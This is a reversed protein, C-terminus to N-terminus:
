RAMWNSNKDNSSKWNKEYRDVKPVKAEEEEQKRIYVQSYEPQQFLEYAMTLADLGDDHWNPFREMEERLRTQAEINVDDVMFMAGNYLPAALAEIRAAKSTRSHTVLKMRGNEVTVTHGRAKLANSVHLHTTSIGIKEVAVHRIPLNGIYLNCVARSVDEFRLRTIMGDLIYINFSGHDQINRQMGIVWIAWCDGMRNNDKRMGAPDIVMIKLLGNPVQDKRIKNIMSFELKVDDAPTPNLLHQSNFMKTNQKLQELREHSIYRPEGDRTGDITTTVYRTTFLPSGDKKQMGKIYMLVDDFHYPTGAVMSRDGDKGLNISMDFAERMGMMMKPSNALDHTSIDDYRRVSFHRGTPMGDMLGWPECSCERQTHKRRLVFGNDSWQVARTPPVDWVIDPFLLKLDDNLEFTNRIKRFFVRAADRTYSFIAITEDPNKLLDQITRNETLLTTKGHERGWLDLTMTNPGDDIMNCMSVFHGKPDNMFRMGLIFYSLFWLDTRALKRYEDVESVKGDLIRQAVKLYKNPYKVHPVPVFEVNNLIVNKTKKGNSIINTRVPRVTRHDHPVLNPSLPTAAGETAPLSIPPNIRENPMLVEPTKQGGKRHNHVKIDFYDPDVDFGPARTPPKPLYNGPNNAKAM